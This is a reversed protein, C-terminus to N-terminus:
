FKDELLKVLINDIVNYMTFMYVEKQLERFSTYPHNLKSTNLAKNSIYDLTHNEVVKYPKYGPDIFLQM